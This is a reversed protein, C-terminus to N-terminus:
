KAAAGAIRALKRGLDWRTKEKKFQSQRATMKIRLTQLDFGSGRGFSPNSRGPGWKKKEKQFQDYNKKYQKALDEAEDQLAKFSDPDTGTGFCRTCVSKVGFTKDEHIGEGQCHKCKDLKLPPVNVARAGELFRAVIRRILVDM